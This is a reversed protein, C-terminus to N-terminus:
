KLSKVLMNLTLSRVTPNDTGLGHNKELGSAEVGWRIILRGSILPRLNICAGLPVHESSHHWISGGFMGLDLFHIQAPNSRLLGKQSCRYDSKLDSLIASSSCRRKSMFLMKM